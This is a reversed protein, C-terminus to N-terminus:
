RNEAITKSLVVCAKLPRCVVPQFGNYYAVYSPGKITKLFYKKLVKKKLCTYGMDM